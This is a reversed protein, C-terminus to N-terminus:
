RRCEWCIPAPHTMYWGRRCQECIIFVAALQVADYSVRAGGLRPRLRNCYSRPLRGTDRVTEVMREEGCRGCRADGRTTRSTLHLETRRGDKTVLQLVLWFGERHAHTVTAGTLTDVTQDLGSM